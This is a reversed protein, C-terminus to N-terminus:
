GNSGGDGLDEWGEIGGVLGDRIGGPIDHGRICGGGGDGRLGLGSDGEIWGTDIERM